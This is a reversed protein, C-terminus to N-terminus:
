IKGIFQEVDKDVFCVKGEDIIAGGSKISAEIFPKRRGVFLFCWCGLYLGVVFVIICGGVDLETSNIALVNLYNLDLRTLM